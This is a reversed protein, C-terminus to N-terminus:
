SQKEKTPQTKLRGWFADHLDRMRQKAAEQKALREKRQQVSETM